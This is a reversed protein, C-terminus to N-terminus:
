ETVFGNNLYAFDKYRSSNCDMKSRGLIDQCGNARCITFTANREVKHSHESSVTDAVAGSNLQLIDSFDNTLHQDLGQLIGTVPYMPNSDTNIAQDEIFAMNLGDNSDLKTNSNQKDASCKNKCKKRLKMAKYFNLLGRFKGMSKQRLRKRTMSVLASCACLRSQGGTCDNLETDVRKEPEIRCTEIKVVSDTRRVKGSISHDNGVITRKSGITLVTDTRRMAMVNHEDAGILVRESTITEDEDTYRHEPADPVEAGDGCERVMGLMLCDSVNSTYDSNSDKTEGRYGRDVYKYDRDAGAHSIYAAHSEAFAYDHMYEDTDSGGSDNKVASCDTYRVADNLYRNLIVRKGRTEDFLNDVKEMLKMRRMHKGLVTLRDSNQIHFAINALEM